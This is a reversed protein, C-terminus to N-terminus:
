CGFLDAHTGTREFFIQENDIKYVLLWDSEIHLERYSKWKGKLPHDQYKEPLPKEECVLLNIVTKMKSIEYGRHTIRKVDRQFHTSYESQLM